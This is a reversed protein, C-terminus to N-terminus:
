CYEADQQHPGFEEGIIGHEPYSDAIAARLAQETERDAATVPSQDSKTDVAVGSLYHRGIIAGSIKVLKEIFASFEALQAATIPKTFLDPSHQAPSM